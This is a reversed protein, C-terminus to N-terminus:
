EVITQALNHHFSGLMNPTLKFITLAAVAVLVLGLWSARTLLKRVKM